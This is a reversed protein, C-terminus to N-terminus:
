WARRDMSNKLCFYQLPNGHGRGSSREWGPISDVDRIGGTNAPLNRALLVVQFAWSLLIFWHWFSIHLSFSNFFFFFAIKLEVKSIKFEFYNAVKRRNCVIVCHNLKTCIYHQEKAPYRYPLSKAACVTLYSFVPCLIIHIYSWHRSFLHVFLKHMQIIFVYAYAHVCKCTFKNIPLLKFSIPLILVM